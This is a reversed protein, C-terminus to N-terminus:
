KANCVEKISHWQQDHAQKIDDLRDTIISLADIIRHPHITEISEDNIVFLLLALSQSIYRDIDNQADMISAPIKNSM